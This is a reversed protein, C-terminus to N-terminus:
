NGFLKHSVGAFLLNKFGRFVEGKFGLTNKNSRISKPVDKDKEPVSRTM